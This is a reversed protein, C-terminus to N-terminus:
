WIAIIYLRYSGCLVQAFANRFAISEKMLQDINPTFADPDGYGGLSPRLDDVIIFLVNKAGFGNKLYLFLFCVSIQYYWKGANM